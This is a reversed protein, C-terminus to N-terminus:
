YPNCNQGGRHKGPLAHWVDEYIKCEAELNNIVSLVNSLGTEAREVFRAM